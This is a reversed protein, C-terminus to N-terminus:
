EFLKQALEKIGSKRERVQEIAQQNAETRSQAEARRREHKEQTVRYHHDVRKQRDRKARKISRTIIEYNLKNLRGKNNFSKYQKM